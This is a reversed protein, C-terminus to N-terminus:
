TTMTARFADIIKRALGHTVLWAEPGGRSEDLRELFTTITAERAEHVTPNATELWARYLETQDLRALVLPL